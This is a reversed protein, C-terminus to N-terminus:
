ARVHSFSSKRTTRSACRPPRHRGRSRTVTQLPVCCSTGGGNRLASTWEMATLSGRNQPLTNKKHGSAPSGRRQLKSEVGGEVATPSSGGRTSRRYRAPAVGRPTTTARRRSHETTAKARASFYKTCATARFRSPSRTPTTAPACKIRVSLLSVTMLVVYRYFAFREVLTHLSPPRLYKSRRM